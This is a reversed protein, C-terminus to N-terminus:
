CPESLHISVPFTQTQTQAQPQDPDLLPLIHPKCFCTKTGPNCRLYIPEVVLVKFAPDITRCKWSDAYCTCQAECFVLKGVNRDLNEPDAIVICIDGPQAPRSPTPSTM